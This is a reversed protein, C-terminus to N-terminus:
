TISWEIETIRFDGTHTDDPDNGLRTLYVYVKSNVTVAFSFDDSTSSTLQHDLVDNITGLTFATGTTISQAPNSGPTIVNIDLRLRLNATTASSMAYHIIVNFTGSVSAVVQFAVYDNELHKMPVYRIGNAFISSSQSADVVGITSRSSGAPGQEGQPGQSGNQGPVGQDGTDGKPGMPGQPGTPGQPGQSGQSGNGSSFSGAFGSM